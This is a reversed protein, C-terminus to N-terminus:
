KMPSVTIRPRGSLRSNLDPVTKSVIERMQETIKAEEAQLERLRELQVATPASIYGGIAGTLANIDERLGSPFRYSLSPVKRTLPERLGKVRDLAQTVFRLVEADAPTGGKMDQVLADLQAILRDARDINENLRSTMDRLTTLAQTQAGVDADSVTMRPDISVRVPKRQERGAVSLVVTYEGAGVPPGGAGGFRGGGGGRGGGPVAGRGGGPPPAPAVPPDQRLDWAVRNVGVTRPPNTLTRITKGSRDLVKVSLDGAPASRLFYVISAGAPPNPGAFTRDGTFVNTNSTQWRVAPELDFLFADTDRAAALQQVATLDDLIWAGRGHTGAILDNERPHILLDRVAVPPLNGRISLWHAGADVSAFVGLETGVYLVSRNKPDERVVHVYGKAPLDSAIATWTQGFDSTKFVYPRFDDDQHRDAAVYATGPDAHSAEVTPIWSSAPLGQIRSTVNTWTKGGDRTVQVVGDDTGVWIVGAQRPSEAITIITCHFEAATNDPVIEGGSSQQKAKDNTTLDPSIAQWTQGADITRFLVNGGFYVVKSDHPSIHIPSNWNFRYQHRALADGSSGNGKMTPAVSRSGGITLDTVGIIGGQTDNYVINPRSPDPVAFFGDGFLLTRWDDRRIGENLTTMSPGCWNFNDQLGGCITYPRQMDYAVHYFQSIALTNLYDWSKGGDWSQYVGGDNGDLIRNPNLPDIWLAHHDSHVNAGIQDITRGGDRSMYLNGGLVYVREADKPDVRVVGFYFPRLTISPDRQLVRWNEGRDDSRFLVGDDKFETVMYVTEPQSRAVALGIRDMPKAPLGRSLKRWTAGGDTSKYLATNGAGSDFRWPRRRYTYMGAYVIRPNSPDLEVDSCGTDNDVFLIKQWTKGGDTTKFLGREDNAGWEHGLAAVYAVDADRPDVRIRAIRETDALGLRTWTEGADTSRYVGDGFSVSNRPNGEGTGAYIVNHDSPAIALAGISLTAQGDFLPRFTTGANITKFVGGDAAGVYFTTPDGPLGEIATVRGGTNAPGISRWSLGALPSAARDPQPQERAAFAVPLLLTLAAGAILPRMGRM